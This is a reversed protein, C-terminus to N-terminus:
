QATLLGTEIFVTCTIGLPAIVIQLPSESFNSAPTLVFGIKPKESSNSISLQVIICLALSLPLTFLLLTGLEIEIVDLLVLATPKGDDYM